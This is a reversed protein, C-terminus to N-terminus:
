PEPYSSHIRTLQTILRLSPFAARVLQFTRHHPKLLDAFWDTGKKSPVRAKATFTNFNKAYRPTM